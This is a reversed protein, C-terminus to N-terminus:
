TEVGGRNMKGLVNFIHIPRLKTPTMIKLIGTSDTNHM